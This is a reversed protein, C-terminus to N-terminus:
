YISCPSATDGFTGTKGTPHDQQWKVVEEKAPNRTGLMVEYGESLFGSALTQGVEASGLIGIKM